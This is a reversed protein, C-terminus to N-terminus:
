CNPEERRHNGGFLEYTGYSVFEGFNGSSDKVEPLINEPINFKNLLFKNWKLKFPDYLGTCCANSYDTSHEKGDTLKYLLWSDVTGFCVDGKEGRQRMDINNDLWYKLKILTLDAPFAFKAVLHLKSNRTLLYGVKCLKRVSKWFFSNNIKDCAEAARVDSWNILPSLPNGTKKEFMVFSTRQNAIGFAIIDNPSVKSNVILQKITNYCQNWYEMPDHEAWSQIPTQLPTKKQSKAIIKGEQNVLIARIEQTGADIACIYKM